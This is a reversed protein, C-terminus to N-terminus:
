LTPGSGKHIYITVMEKRNYRSLEGKERQSFGVEAIDKVYVSRGDISRVIVDKIEGPNRYRGPLYLVINRGATEVVGCPLSVNGADIESAIDDLSLGRGELLSRDVDVHIEKIDGGAVNIESLGSVRQLSPKIRREVYDRIEPIELGKIEVAVIMVPRDSPDYRMVVPEQVEEPFSDRILEIKERVNLAAIRIDVDDAFSLNIRSRGDGSESNMEIIGGVTKLIREVPKTIITEIKGPTIGPYDIIVSLASSGSAPLLSVPMKLLSIGGTVLFALFVMFASVRNEIFYKIM